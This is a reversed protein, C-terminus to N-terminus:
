FFDELNNRHISLGILTLRTCLSSTLEEVSVEGRAYQLILRKGTGNKFIGKARIINGFEGKKLKRGFTKLQADSICLPPKMSVSDFKRSLFISETLEKREAKPLPLDLSDFGMSFILASENIIVIRSRIKELTKSSVLDIKNILIIDANVLQDMFFGGFAGPQIDELFNAADVITVVSELKIERCSLGQTLEKIVASAEAVGSPEILLREPRFKHVIKRVADALKASQSCCICGGPIEIIRVRGSEGIEDGDMGLRGFENVLVATKERSEQLRNKIFTTKGAGLFGCVLCTKVPMEEKTDM